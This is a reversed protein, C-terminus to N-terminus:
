EEKQWVAYRAKYHGFVGSSAGYSILIPLEHYKHHFGNEDYKFGILRWGGRRDGLVYRMLGGAGPAHTIYGSGSWDIPMSVIKDGDHEKPKIRYEMGVFNFETNEIDFWKSGNLHQITEGNKAAQLIEIQEDLTM